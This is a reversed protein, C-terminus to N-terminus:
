YPRGDARRGVELRLGLVSRVRTLLSLSRPFLPLPLSCLEGREEERDRLLVPPATQHPTHYMWFLSARRTDRRLPFSRSGNDSCTTATGRPALFSLSGTSGRSTNDSLFPGTRRFTRASTGTDRIWTLASTERVHFPGPYLSLSWSHSSLTHQLVLTGEAGKRVAGRRRWRYVIPSEGM